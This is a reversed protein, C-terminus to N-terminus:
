LKIGSPKLGNCTVMVYVEVIFEDLCALQIVKSLVFSQVICLQIRVVIDVGDSVKATPFLRLIPWSQQCFATM